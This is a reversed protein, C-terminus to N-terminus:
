TDIPHISSRPPFGIIKTFKVRTRVYRPQKHNDASVTYLEHWVYGNNEGQAILTYDCFFAQNNYKVIVFLILIYFASFVFSHVLQISSAM